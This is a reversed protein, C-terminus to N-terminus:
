SRALSRRLRALRSGAPAERYEDAEAKYQEPIDVLSYKM